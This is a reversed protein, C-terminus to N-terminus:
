RFRLPEENQCLGIVQAVHARRFVNRQGRGGINGAVAMAGTYQELAAEGVMQSEDFPRLTSILSSLLVVLAVKNFRGMSVVSFSLTDKKIGRPRIKKNM